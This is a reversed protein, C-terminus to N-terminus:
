THARVKWLTIGGAALALLVAVLAFYRAVASPAAIWTTMHHFSAALLLLALAVSAPSLPLLPKAFLKAERLVVAFAVLAAVLAHSVYRTVGSMFLDPGGLFAFGYLAALVLLALWVTRPLASLASLAPQRRPSSGDVTLRKGVLGGALICLPMLLCINLRLLYEAFQRAKAAAPVSSKAWLFVGTLAENELGRESFPATIKGLVIYPIVITAALLVCAIIRSTPKQERWGEGLWLWVLVAPLFVIANQRGLVAVLGGLLLVLLRTQLLGLLVLALGLVFVMDGVMAPVALYYRFTYPNVVFLAMCLTYQADSLTLVTLIRHFTWVIAACVLLTLVLFMREEPQSLAHASAGVLWAPVLRMTHNSALKPNIEASPLAPAAQAITMYSKTDDAVLVTIGEEYSLWRNTVLLFLCCLLTIAPRLPM